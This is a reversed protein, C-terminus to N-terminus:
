HFTEYGLEIVIERSSSAEGRAGMEGAFGTKEIVIAGNLSM